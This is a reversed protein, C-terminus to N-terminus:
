LPFEFYLNGLKGTATKKVLDITVPLNFVCLQGNQFCGSITTSTMATIVVPVPAGYTPLPVPAPIVSPVLPPAPTGPAIPSCTPPCAAKGYDFISFTGQGWAPWAVILMLLALRKM